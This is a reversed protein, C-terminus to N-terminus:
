NSVFSASTIASTCGVVPTGDATVEGFALNSVTGAYPRTVSTLTVQGATAQYFKTPGQGAVIDAVLNVCLGCSNFGADAGGITFTGTKLGGVFAGSGAVFKFFFVDRPPGADLTISVTPNGAGNAGVTGTVSGLAAYSGRVKCTAVDDVAADPPTSSESSCAVATLGSLLWAARLASM